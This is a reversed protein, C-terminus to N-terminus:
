RAPAGSLVERAVREGAEIAGEMYGNWEYATDTGAWNVRGVPERLVPGLGTLTGPGMLGVPGGRSWREEHWNFDTYTQPHLAEDGVAAAVADLVPQRRDVPDLRGLDRASAGTVFAVLVGPEAGAPSADVVMQVPGRDSIALGSLGRERWWAREYIAVGKMYAGMPMRQALAERPPPMAPEFEIRAAIAPSVAVIVRRARVTRRESTVTAAQRDTAISSVPSDLVVGDGIAAAIRESLQQTGGSLHSDQAGGEFDVLAQLGGAAQAYWLFFLLSLESPEAGFVTRVTSDFVARTVDSRVGRLWHEVSVSDLRRAGRSRWPASRHVLRRRVEVRAARLATEAVGFVSILPYPTTFEHRDGAILAVHRGDLYQKELPIGLEDCLALIRRQGPGVWHAGLDIACGDIAVTHTKGGVRDRAEVVAVSAGARELERAASLGSLGAGVVAIDVDTQAAM